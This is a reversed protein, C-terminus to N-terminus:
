DRALLPLGRRQYPQSVPQRNAHVLTKKGSPSVSFLEDGVMVPDHGPPLVLRRFSNCGDCAWHHNYGFRISFDTGGCKGCKEPRGFENCGSPAKTLTEEPRRIMGGREVRKFTVQQLHRQRLETSRRREAYTQLAEWEVKAEANAPYRRKVETLFPELESVTIVGDPQGKPFEAHDLVVVVGIINSQVREAVADVHIRNQILPSSRQMPYDKGITWSSDGPGAFVVKDYNKTEIVVFAGGALVVHDVQTLSEGLDFIVDHVSPYGLKRLALAVAEEGRRGITEPFKKYLRDALSTLLVVGVILASLLLAAGISNNPVWDWSPVMDIMLLVAVVPIVALIFGTSRADERSQRGLLFMVVCMWSGLYLVSLFAFFSVVLLIQTAAM